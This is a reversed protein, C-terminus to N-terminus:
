QQYREAFKSIGDFVTKGVIKLNRMRRATADPDKADDEDATTNGTTADKGGFFNGAVGAITNVLTVGILVFIATTLLNNPSPVQLQANAGIQGFDGLGLSAQGRSYCLFSNCM